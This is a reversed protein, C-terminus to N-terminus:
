VVSKRDEEYQGEFQSGDSNVRKGKGHRKGNKFEGEYVDGNPWVIKGFGHPVQARVPGKYRLGGDLILTIDKELSTGKGKKEEASM